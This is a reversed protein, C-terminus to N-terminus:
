DNSAPEANSAPQDNTGPQDFTLQVAEGIRRYGVAQYIGNSTPNALDTYLMCTRGPVALERATVAAVCASAYGRGRDDPPTYVYQVRSVGGVAATTGTMSVPRDDVVWLWLRGAAVREPLDSAPEIPLHTDAHFEIVWDRLLGLEAPDARRIGGPVGKPATVADAVYLGQRMVTEVAAGTRRGWAGAFADAQRRLGGVGPLDRRREHLEGALAAIADDPGLSVYAGFPPTHMAAAVVAGDATAWAWRNGEDTGDSRRTANTLIVSHEAPRSRLFDGAYTLFDAVRVSSAVSTM